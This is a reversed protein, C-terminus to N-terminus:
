HVPNISDHLSRVLAGDLTLIRRRGTGDSVSWLPVFPSRTEDSREWVLRLNRAPVGLRGIQGAAAARDPLRYGPRVTRLGAFELGLPTDNVQALAVERGGDRVVVLFYSPQSPDMSDVHTSPGITPHKLRMGLATSGILGNREIGELVAGSLDSKPSTPEVAPTAEIRARGPYTESYALGPNDSPVAAVSTRLVVVYKNTWQRAPDSVAYRLFYHANWNAITLYTNPALNYTGGNGSWNRSLVKGSSTAYWPDVIYFGNLTVPGSLPDASSAFGVVDVAHIGADVMAGVPQRTTRIGMMLYANADAQSWSVGRGPYDNFGYGSPSHYWLLKAWARADLGFKRGGPYQARNYSTGGSSSPVGNGYAENFWADVTAGSVDTSGTIADVHTLASASVCTEFVRQGLSNLYYNASGYETAYYGPYASATYGLAPQAAVGVLGVSAALLATTRIARM